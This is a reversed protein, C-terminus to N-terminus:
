LYKIFILKVKLFKYIDNKDKRMKLTKNTMM